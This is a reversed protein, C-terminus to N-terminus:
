KKDPKIQNFLKRIKVIFDEGFEGGVGAFRKEEIERMLAKVQGPAYESPLYDPSIDDSPIDGREVLRLLFAKQILNFFPPTGPKQQMAEKFYDESRKTKVKQQQQKIFNKMHLQLFIFGIGFPIVLLVWWTGFTKNGLSYDTLRYNGEIEISDPHIVEDAVKEETTEEKEEFLVRKQEETPQGQLPNVKLPIPSSKLSSYSKTKPNFYSFELSPIEAISASLPRMEVKFTKTPGVVEEVPPLDSLRFFGSFGPQCCVEPMPMTSMEGNGSIKILLIIKDGVTVEDHSLLTVDFVLDTGIAGNFSPPKDQGPFPVVHITIPQSEARSDDPAVSKQGHRGVEFARGEIVGGPFHYEGPKVAEIIQRAELNNLNDEKYEKTDKGGIKNFGEAQLLPLDEKSLDVSFNYIFHYGVVIQQGPYLTTDGEIINYLELIITTRATRTAQRPAGRPPPRTPTAKQDEVVFTTSVSRYKRNGVTVTIEPLVHLGQKQPELSFNYLSIVVDSTASLEVEKLFEVELGKNEMRFSDIDVTANKDHTITITGELPMGVVGNKEIEATVRVEQSFLFLPVFAYLIALIIWHKKVM